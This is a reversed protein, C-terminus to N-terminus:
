HVKQFRGTKTINCLGTELDHLYLALSISNSISSLVLYYYYYKMSFSISDYIEM